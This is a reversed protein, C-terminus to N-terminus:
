MDFILACVCYEGFDNGFRGMSVQKLCYAFHSIAHCFIVSRHKTPTYKGNKSNYNLLFDFQSPRLKATFKQWSSKSHKVNTVTTPTDNEKTEFITM